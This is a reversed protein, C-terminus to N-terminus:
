QEALMEDLIVQMRGRLDDALAVAKARLNAEKGLNDAAQLASPYILEARCRIKSPGGGLSASEPWCDTAGTIVWGWVEMDHRICLELGGARFQLLQDCNRNLDGEPFVALHGGASVHKDVRAVLSQMLERDVEFNGREAGGRFPVPMHGIAKALRGIIPLRLHRRAMLTKVDGVLFSPSLACVLATDLWSTHNVAIFLKKGDPVVAESLPQLGADDIGIWCCSRFALRWCVSVLYGIKRGLVRRSADTRFFCCCCFDAVLALLWAPLTSLIFIVLFACRALLVCFGAKSRRVSEDASSQSSDPGQDETAM